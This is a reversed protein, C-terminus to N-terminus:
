SLVRSEFRDGNPFVSAEHSETGGQLRQVRPKGDGILSHGGEFAPFGDQNGNVRTGSYFIHVIGCLTYELRRGAHRRGADLSFGRRVDVIREVAKGDAFSKGTVANGSISRAHKGFESAHIGHGGAGAEAVLRNGHFVEGGKDADVEGAPGALFGSRSAHFETGGVRGKGGALSVGDVPAPLLGGKRRVFTGCGVLPFDAESIRRAGKVVVVYTGEIKESGVTCASVDFPERHADRVVAAGVGPGPRVKGAAADAALNQVQGEAGAVEVGTGAGGPIGILDLGHVVPAVDGACSSVTKVLM